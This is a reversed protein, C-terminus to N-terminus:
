KKGGLQYYHFMKQFLGGVAVTSNAKFAIFSTAGAAFITEVNEASLYGKDASVEEMKFGADNTAKVLEPLIPCDNTNREYIAAATGVNTKTDTALHVKVWDNETREKGYKM